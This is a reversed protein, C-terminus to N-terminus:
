IKMDFGSPKKVIVKGDEKKKKNNKNQQYTGNGKEKADYRTEHYEVDSKRIVQESETKANKEVQTNFVAQEAAVRSEENGKMLSIDPMRSVAGTFEIPSLAM